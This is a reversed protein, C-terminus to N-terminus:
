GLKSITDGMENIEKSDRRLERVIFKQESISMMRHIAFLTAFPWKNLQHLQSSSSTAAVLVTQAQHSRGPCYHPRRAAVPSSNSELSLGAKRVLDGTYDESSVM